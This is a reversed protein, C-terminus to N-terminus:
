GANRRRAEADASATHEAIRAVIEPWAGEPLDHGMGEIAHWRAGPIARATAEGAAPPVLPDDSGHLVLTPVTVGALAERRSGSAVIAAMQRAIGAPDFARDFVRGALVRWSTEDFPFGRGSFARQTRTSYEIYDARDLPPPTSLAQAAEPTPGPLGPEGTTSMISTMSRLRDPFLIAVQQVIMGGMSMGAVHAREIMLADMLGVVDAAMEDLTYAVVPVTGAARASMIDGLDPVGAGPFHTSLGVDRNDFLVVFHGEDVLRDLFREDWHILQTGLGRVLVLPRDAPDGRTQYEIEIGNARAQSMPDATQWM